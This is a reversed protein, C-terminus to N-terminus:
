GSLASAGGGFAGVDVSSSLRDGLGRLQRGGARRRRGHRAAGIEM